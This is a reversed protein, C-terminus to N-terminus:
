YYMDWGGFGIYLLFLAIAILITISLAFCIVIDKLIKSISYNSNYDCWLARFPLLVLTIILGGVLYGCIVTSGLLSMWEKLTTPENGVYWYICLVLGTAIQCFWIYRDSILKTDEKEEM